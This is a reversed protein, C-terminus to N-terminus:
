LVELTKNIDSKLELTGTEIAGLLIWAITEPFPLFDPSIFYTLPM